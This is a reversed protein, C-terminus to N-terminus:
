NEETDSMLGIQLLFFNCSYTIRSLNFSVWWIIRALCYFVKMKAAKDKTLNYFFLYFCTSYKKYIKYM